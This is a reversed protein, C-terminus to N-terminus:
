GVPFGVRALFQWSHNKFEATPSQPVTSLGLSYRGDLFLLVKGLDFGVTAGLPVSLELAEPESVLSSEFCGLKRGDPETVNCTLSYGLAIGGYVGGYLKNRKLGVEVMAPFEVYVLDFDLADGTGANVGAGGKSVYDLELRLNVNPHFLFNVYGGLMTGWVFDSSGETGFFTGKLNSYTGGGTFGMLYRQAAAPTTQGALLALVLGVLYVRKM